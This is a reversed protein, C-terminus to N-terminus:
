ALPPPARSRPRAPPSAREAVTAIWGLRATCHLVPALPFEALSLVEGAGAAFQTIVCAHSEDAPADETHDHPQGCPCGGTPANATPTEHAGHVWAHAAPDVALWGLVLVLWVAGVATLRPALPLPRPRTLRSM